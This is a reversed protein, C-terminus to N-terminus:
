TQMHGAAVCMSTSINATARTASAIVITLAAVALMRKGPWDACGLLMLSCVLAIMAIIGDGLTCHVVAFARESPSGSNWITYLPLQLTEWALNLLVSSVAYIRLARLWSLHTSPRAMSLNM